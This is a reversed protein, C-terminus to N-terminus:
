GIHLGLIMFISNEILLASPAAFLLWYCSSLWHTELFLLSYFVGEVTQDKKAANKYMM